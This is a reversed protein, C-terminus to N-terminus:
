KEDRTCKYGFNVWTDELSIASDYQAAFAGSSWFPMSPDLESVIVNGEISM